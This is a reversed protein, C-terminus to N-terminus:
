DVIHWNLVPLIVKKKFNRCNLGKRTSGRNAHRWIEIHHVDINRAGFIPFALCYLIPSADEAFPIYNVSKEWVLTKSTESQSSARNSTSASTPSLLVYHHGSRNARPDLLIRDIIIYIQLLFHLSVMLYIMPVLKLMCLLGNCYGAALPFLPVPKYLVDIYVDNM